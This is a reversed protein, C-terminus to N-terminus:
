EEKEEDFEKVQSFLPAAMGDKSGSYYQREIYSLEWIPDRMWFFDPLKYLSLILHLQFNIILDNYTYLCNDIVNNKFTLSDLWDM